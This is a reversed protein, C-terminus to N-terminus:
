HQNKNILSRVFLYLLLGITITIIRWSTNIGTGKKIIRSYQKKIYVVDKDKIKSSTWYGKLLSLVTDLRGDYNHTVSKHNLYRISTMITLELLEDIKKHNSLYINSMYKLTDKLIDLQINPILNGIVYLLEDNILDNENSIVKKLHNIYREPTDVIDRLSEEGEHNSQNMSTSHIKDGNEIVNLMVVYIYKVMSRLRTQIDTIIRTTDDTTCKISRDYHLGGKLVIPSRHEFVEQYNNVQKILFKNSLKEYTMTAVGVDANFKFYNTLLSSFMRYQMILVIDMIADEIIKKDLKSTNFKHLLYTLFLYKPNSAIIFNKNIDKLKHIEPTLKELDMGLIDVFLSDDDDRTFRVPNVGLLKGSLFTITDNNKQMWGIRFMHLYRALERDFKIHNVYQNFYENIEM